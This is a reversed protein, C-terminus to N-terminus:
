DSARKRASISPAGSPMAIRSPGFRANKFWAAARMSPVLASLASPVGM